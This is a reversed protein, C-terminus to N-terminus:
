QEGLQVVRGAFLVLYPDHVSLVLVVGHGVGGNGLGVGVVLAYVVLTSLRHVLM